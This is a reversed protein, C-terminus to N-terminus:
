DEWTLGPEPGKSYDFKAPTDSLDSASYPKNNRGAKANIDNIRQMVLTMKHAITRGTDGPVYAITSLLDAKETDTAAAGSIEKVVDATISKYTARHIQGEPSRIMNAWADPLGLQDLNDRINPIYGDLAAELVKLRETISEAIIGASVEEKNRGGVIKPGTKANYFVTDDVSFGRNIKEAEDLYYGPKDGTNVNVNTSGSKALGKLYQEIDKEGGQEQYVGYGRNATPDAAGPTKHKYKAIKMQNLNSLTTQELARRNNAMNDLSSANGTLRMGFEAIQGPTATDLYNGRRPIQYHQDTTSSNDEMNYEFPLESKDDAAIGDSYPKWTSGSDLNNGEAIDAAPPQYQQRVQSEDYTSNLQPRAQGRNLLNSINNQTQIYDAQKAEAANDARVGDLWYADAINLM